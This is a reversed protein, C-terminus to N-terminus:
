GTAVSKSFWHSRLIFLQGIWVAGLVLGGGITVPILKGWGASIDFHTEVFLSYCFLAFLPAVQPVLVAKFMHMANFKLNRFCYPLLVGLEIFVIPLATGVAVGMVGMPKILLLSLIVNLVAEALYMFAPGRVYGMGTMTSRLVGLPLAIIQAGLLVLLVLHAESYGTGVWTTLLADGFFAAGIFLGSILLVAVGMGREILQQLLRSESRAHLEGAKPMCVDGIQQVPQRIFQCLRLALYYPVIAKAGLVAGIVISDTAYILQSAINGVFAFFSFGFCERLTSLKLYKFRISLQPLSRFALVAILGNELLTVTLFIAALTFMGWNQHLCTLTLCIRVLDSAIVVGRELDFRQMGHLVGGFTSGIMGAACNFGLLLIVLRIELLSYGEWDHIHPALWALVCATVIVISGLVSYAALVLNVIQNLRAWDEQARHTSVYRSITTGFGFHLLGAYSAISNIMIWMGYTSDGLIGLVYPMMFFGIVLTVVHAAWSAFLNIRLSSLSKM